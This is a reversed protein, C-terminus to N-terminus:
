FVGDRHESQQVLRRVYATFRRDIEDLPMGLYHELIPKCTQPDWPATPSITGAATRLTGAVADATMALLAPRYKADEADWLFRAFAWNQAYFAEIRDGPRHVVEGAHMRVLEGLPFLTRQEVAKRLGEIRTGNASLDWRPLRGDWDIDEFLCATGEELFPPLRTKFHRAAFQHWGEHATVAQTQREGFDYAVFQDGVTYGGRTIQLYVAAVSGTHRRTFESWQSRNAFVYCVLPKDTTVATPALRRYQAYAGELVQPLADNLPDNRDLTTYLVYHPTSVRRAPQDGLKWDAVTVPAVSAPGDTAASRRPPTPSAACGVATLTALAIALATAAHRIVNSTSPRATRMAHGIGKWGGGGARLNGAMADADDREAGRNSMMLM